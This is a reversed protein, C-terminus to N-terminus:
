EHDRKRFRRSTKLRWNSDPVGRSSLTLLRRAIGGAGPQSEATRHMDLRVGGCKQSM